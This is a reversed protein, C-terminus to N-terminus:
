LLTGPERKCFVGAMALDSVGDPCSCFGFILLILLYYEAALSSLGLSPLPWCANGAPSHTNGGDVSMNHDERPLVSGLLPGPVRCHRWVRTM